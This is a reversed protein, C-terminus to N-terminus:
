PNESMGHASNLQEDSWLSSAAHGMLLKPYYIFAFWPASKSPELIQDLLIGGVTLAVGGNRRIPPNRRILVTAGLLYAYQIGAWVWWSLRRRSRRDLWAFMFPHLHLLAFQYHNANTQGSREYWRGCALTNNVWAGGWLDMALASAVLAAGSSAQRQRKVLVPALVGGILGCGVTMINDVGSAEPGIFDDWKKRLSAPLSRM